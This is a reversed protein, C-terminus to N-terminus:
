ANSRAVARLLCNRELGVECARVCVRARVCARLMVKRLTLRPKAVTQPAEGQKSWSRKRINNDYTIWKENDTILQKLLPEIENWKQLSECISIRDMLNKVTLHHSV